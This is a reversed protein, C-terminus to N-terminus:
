LGAGRYTRFALITSFLYLAANVLCIISAALCVDYEYHREKDKIYVMFVIGAALLLAFGVVHYIVEFITKPLMSATMFSALCSILLLATTIFFATVVLLFFLTETRGYTLLTSKKLYTAVLGICIAGLVTQFLKLLGGATKLYGTNLIIATSSTTTTTRTITVSHSM